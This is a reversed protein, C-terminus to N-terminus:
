GDLRDLFIKKIIVETTLLLHIAMGLVACALSRAHPSKEVFNKRHRMPLRHIPVTFVLNADHLLLNCYQDESICMLIIFCLKVNKLSEETKTDQM